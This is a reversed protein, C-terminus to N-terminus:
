RFVIDCAHFYGKYDEDGFENVEKKFIIRVTKNGFLSVLIQTEDLPNICKKISERIIESFM